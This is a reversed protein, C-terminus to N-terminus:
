ISLREQYDLGYTQRMDPINRRKSEDLGLARLFAAIIRGFKGKSRIQSEPTFLGIVMSNSKTTINRIGLSAGDKTVPIDLKKSFTADDEFYHLICPVGLDRGIDNGLLRRKTGSRLTSAVKEDFDYWFIGLPTYIDGVVLRKIVKKAETFRSLLYRIIGDDTLHWLEPGLRESDIALNFCHSLMAQAGLTQEDFVLVEYSRRRANAWQEVASIGTDRFAVKNSQMVMSNVLSKAVGPCWGLGLLSHMRFVSDINDLDITGSILKGFQKGGKVLSCIMDPDLGLKLISKHLKLQNLYYLQHHINEPRYTGKIISDIQAEHDWGFRTQFEYELLHGFAPSAIDHVLCAVEISKIVDDDLECVLRLRPKLLLFLGLVALSHAFRRAESLSGLSSSFINILRIDRLRQVEPTNIIPILYEPLEFPGYLHDVVIM